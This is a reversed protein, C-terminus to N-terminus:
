KLSINFVYNMDGLSELYLSILNSQNIRDSMSIYSNGCQDNENLYCTKHLKLCILITVCVHCAFDYLNAFCMIIYNILKDINTSHNMMTIYGYNLM